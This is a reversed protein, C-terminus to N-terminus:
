NKYSLMCEVNSAQSNPRTKKNAVDANETSHRKQGITDNAPLPSTTGNRQQPPTIGGTSVQTSCYFCSDCVIWKHPSRM